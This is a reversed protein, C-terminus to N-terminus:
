GTCAAVLGDYAAQLNQGTEPVYSNGDAQLRVLGIATVVREFAPALTADLGAQLAVLRDQAQSLRDRVEVPPTPADGLARADRGIALVADAGIRCPGDTFQAASPQPFPTQSPAAAGGSSGACGALAATLLLATLSRM